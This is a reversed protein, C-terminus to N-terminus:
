YFLCTSVGTENYIAYNYEDSIWITTVTDNAVEVKLDELMQDYEGIQFSFFFLSMRKLRVELSIKM